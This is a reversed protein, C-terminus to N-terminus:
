FARLSDARKVAPFLLWAERGGVMMKPIMSLDGKIVPKLPALDEIRNRLVRQDRYFVKGKWLAEGIIEFKKAKFRVALGKLGGLLEAARKIGSGKAFIITGDFPGDPIPGATLRAYLQDLQEQDFQELDKPTLKKLERRPIPYQYEVQAFDPKERYSEGYPAFEIRAEGVPWRYIVLVAVLLICVIIVSLLLNKSVLM